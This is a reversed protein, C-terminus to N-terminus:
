QIWMFFVFLYIWLIDVFHWYTGVVEVPVPDYSRRSTSFAKLVMMILAVIGGIVHLGHLGFIVYMFPAAGSGRLTVGSNWLQAFGLYQM